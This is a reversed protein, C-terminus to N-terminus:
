VEGFGLMEGMAVMLKREGVFANRAHATLVNDLMLIDCEQWHFSVELKEYIAMIEEMVSDEIPSGDGYCCNRPLDEERYLSTLSKRTAADLGALHWHLAQAFWSREGTKPHKVVAPRVARTRLGNGPKWEFEVCTKNCIKEVESRSTTRFITQWDLGLGEGYNRVYMVGKEIFRERIKPDILQYVRRSDAIPTEGGEPSPQVCCFLIRLPWQYNFSNENHWLVKRDPPYFVPTYVNGGIARRPHEGNDKFLVPCLALAFREFDLAPNLSFNRFLIAGHELLKTEILDRSNRAWEVLDVHEAEPQAVLPLKEEENLYGTKVLQGGPMKVAKPEVTKFRDFKVPVSKSNEMEWRERLARLFNVERILVALPLSRPKGQSGRESGSATSIRREV